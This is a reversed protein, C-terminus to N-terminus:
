HPAALDAWTPARKTTTANVTNRQQTPAKRHKGELKDRALSIFNKALAHAYQKQLTTRYGNAIRDFAECLGQTVNSKIKLIRMADEAVGTVATRTDTVPTQTSATLGETAPRTNTHTDTDNGDIGM